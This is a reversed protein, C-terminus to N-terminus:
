TYSGMNLIYPVNKPCKEMCKLLTTPNGKMDVLKCDIVPGGLTAQPQPFFFLKMDNRCRRWSAKVYGVDVVSNFFKDGGCTEMIFENLLPKTADPRGSRFMRTLIMGSVFIIFVVIFISVGILVEM